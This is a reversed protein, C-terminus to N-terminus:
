TGCSSSLMYLFTHRRFSAVSLPQRLSVPLGNWLFPGSYALSTKYLDIRPLPVNLKKTRSSSTETLLIRKTLYDPVRGLVIKHMFRAKNFALRSSLPLIEAKKYDHNSLTSNKLLVVKVGRRHLSKLPRLAADSASDWLTSAYDIGSQVHAQFFTRRADFNLFHKIKASQHVKKATSKCLNSVHPGWTLNNDITVGLIKHESVENILQSDVSICKKPESMVQRKQRTTILMYKTKEPNLSMHNLHTWEVADDVCKQLTDVVSTIDDGSTHITTDDALMDCQGSSIHLPLDNIYVSFLLPGLVSGQPVGYLIPMAESSSSNFTVKQTRGSLFSAIFTQTPQPLRYISLKRLLLAHDIVDFAKAFDMFLAGCLKNSNIKSLWSDVLETLATHCSHKPRFGSQTEHFLNNSTFYIMIHDNVHKELLKSLVPLVSIPRFNSPDTKDGAKFLPIVKAEKFAKPYVSKEICLNYIYTLSEAIHPASLRLIKSDIEDTGKTSSEKLHTLSNYVKSVSLFPIVQAEYKIKTDCYKRLIHLNNEDSKDTKIVKSAVSCFHNNIEDPSIDNENWSTTKVCKNTLLNIAKWTEKSSKGKKLIDEFFQKKSQRTMYQCKAKQTKYEESQRDIRCLYDRYHQAEIIEPTIWGPRYSYKIRRSRKPAHKDLVERFTSYWTKLADDPNTKNYIESFPASRMDELFLVENFKAFSRYTLVTHGLKPIKVGKKSWTCCIPFHDSIGIVPVCTEIVHKSDTSYLHDIITSSSPTVRTPTNILQSMNFVTTIDKWSKNSKTMDINFDGMLLIEKSELWVLDMMTVFKDVWNAPEAPNRYLFGILIPSAHKLKVETWICEVGFNEFQPLRKFTIHENIYVLLGTEKPNKPDRRITQFGNIFIEKDDICSNLRSESFGFIHFGRGYSESNQVVQSVDSMKNVIHNINLHGIRLGETVPWRNHDYLKTM